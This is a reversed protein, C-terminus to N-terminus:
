AATELVQIEAPPAALAAGGYRRIHGQQRHFDWYREWDGNLRVARLDLLAQAGGLKWRMGAQEMRDKVLHGCAGEVVGTGIPWGQALYAPYDMYPANRRYYGATRRLVEQQTKTLGAVQAQQELGAVVAATQGALLQELREAVWPTRGPDREGLLANVTEWLHELVHFLDLVLTYDPLHTRVAQQLAEAGDTLAVRHAIHAGDYQRARTALRGLAAEKGDLSARQEKRRPVPRPPAEPRPSGARQRLLAAALDQPSRQYPAVTYLTTVIAEKKTGPPQGKGRRVPRSGTAAPARVMPVGKGDAEAVLVLGAGLSERDDPPQQYFAAVDVADEVVSTELAQKSLSLGLMRELQTQTEGYSGDTADFTAWDRLLDSYCRAPLSLEADLPCVVPQGAAIFAHRRFSLKGFVSYYSVPRRDHYALLEQNAGSPAAPRVAARNVFFLRLLTAGLALLRRFLTLEVTYASQAQTDPSTVYRLLAQLDQQAQAIILESHSPM